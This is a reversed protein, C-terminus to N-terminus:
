AAPRRRRAAVGAAALGAGVLALTAPEPVVATPRVVINDVGLLTGAVTLRVNDFSAGSFAAVGEGNFFGAPLASLVNVSGVLTAGLFAQLTLPASGGATAFNFSLASLATSFAINLPTGTGSPQILFNGTLTSFGVGLRAANSVQYAGATAATFTASVGGSTQVLPTVTGPTAGTFDFTQAHAPAAAAATVVAAMASTRRLRDFM